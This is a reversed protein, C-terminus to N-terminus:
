KSGGPAPGKVIKALALLRSSIKLGARDAASVNVEFRVKNDEKLFNIIGGSQTFIGVEGVTLVSQGQLAALISVLDKKASPSVFLVNSKGIDQIERVHRIALKRNNVLKGKVAELSGNFPDDGFITIVLPANADSFAESPWEVFKAFNFLFAAKVQYEDVSPEALPAAPISVSCALLVCAIVLPVVHRHHKVRALRCAREAAPSRPPVATALPHAPTQMSKPKLPIL